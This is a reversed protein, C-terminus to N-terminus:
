PRPPVIPPAGAGPNGKQERLKRAREKAEKLKEAPILETRDPREGWGLPFGPSEVWRVLTFIEFGTLGLHSKRMFSLETPSSRTVETVTNGLLPALATVWKQSPNNLPSFAKARMIDGMQYTQRAHLLRRQTIEWGYYLLDERDGLQALLDQPPPSSSPASPFMGFILFNQGSDTMPKLHPLVYPLGIMSITSLNSVYAFRGMQPQLWDDLVKPVRPALRKMENTPDAMPTVAFFYGSHKVNPGWTLIQNLPQSLGIEDIEKVSDLFSALGRMASFSVIGDPISNTPIKWSELPVPVPRSLRVGGETKLNDGELRVTFEAGELSFRRLRPFQSFDLSVTLVKGDGGEIPRKGKDLAGLARPVLNLQGKGAGVIVWDAVQFFQIVTGASKVEWGAFAGVQIARPARKWSSFVQWLNTSWIKAQDDSLRISLLMERAGDYERVESGSEEAFLDRILPRFLEAHDVAGEPLDKKWARFPATALQGAIEEAYRATEALGFVEHLKTATPDKALATFGVFHHRFMPESSGDAAGEVENPSSCGIVWLTTLAILVTRKMEAVYNAAAKV